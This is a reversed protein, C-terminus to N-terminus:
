FDVVGEACYSAGFASPFNGVVVVLFWKLCCFGFLCLREFSFTDWALAFYFIQGLVVSLVRCYM